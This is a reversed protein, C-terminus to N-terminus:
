SHGALDAWCVLAGVAGLSSTGALFVISINIRVVPELKKKETITLLLDSLSWVVTLKVSRATHLSIPASIEIPVGLVEIKVILLSSWM